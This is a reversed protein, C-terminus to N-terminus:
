GDYTIRWVTGGQSDTIYMKGDPGFALGMPRHEANQPSKLPEKGKFGKAFVVWEDKGALEGDDFPVFAINYGAQPLPARNWSGHFAVFAGGKYKNPLANGHYFLLDNPGWHGPFGVLPDQYNRCRGVSDGDGGYEPGLVKKQQIPDYYCYPWGLNDGAKVRHFEEAPLKASEEDSYMDPFFQRLQDRGHQVVFLNEQKQNWDLAVINRMGTAYRNKPKHTQNTKDAKYQWIGAHKELLPCPDMGPSGKTRSEKMCANSPAGVNVYLNGKGDFDIPKAAHSNQEPMGQLITEREDTKPLLQDEKLPYRYVATESSRYLFGNRIAVGTGTFNGFYQVIDIEHNGTTDRLAVTGHNNEKERLAVYMDGNDRVAIHRAYGLDTVMKQAKFGKPLEIGATQNYNALHYPKKKTEKKVRSDDNNSSQNNEQSGQCATIMTMGALLALFLPKINRM